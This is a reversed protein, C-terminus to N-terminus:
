LRANEPKLSILFKRFQKEFLIPADPVPFQGVKWVAQEASRDLAQNGSSEVLQVETVEGTPVMYIRLLVIQEHSASPPFRWVSQILTRIQGVYNNIAVQDKEAQQAQIEDKLLQQLQNQELEQQLAENLDAGPLPTPKPEAKAKAKEVKPKSVDAQKDIAVKKVASQKKIAKPKKKNAKKITKSKKVKPKDMQVIRAQIHPPTHIVSEEQDMWQTSFSVLIVLVILCAGLVPLAFSRPDKLAEIFRTKTHILM